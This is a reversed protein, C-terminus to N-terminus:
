LLSWTGGLIVISLAISGVPDLWWWGTALMIAGSIAVGLALAADSALHVFASRVNIDRDKERLFLVASSMNIAFGVLAVVIMTKGGVPVPSAFRRVSEWAIGGTVFLLVLANGLSALITTGRMGYTRRASPKRRALFMSAWSLALGLVDSLNHGADALLAMSRSVVGFVAEVVVFALNLSIGILFARGVGARAHGHAHGHAHEHAM